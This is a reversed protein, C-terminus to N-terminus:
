FLCFSGAMAFSAWMVLTRAAPLLSSISSCPQLPVEQGNVCPTPTDPM